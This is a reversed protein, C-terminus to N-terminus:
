HLWVAATLLALGLWGLKVKPSPIDIAALVFLVFAFVLLILRLSSAM